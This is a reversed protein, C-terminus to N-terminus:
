GPTLPGDAITHYHSRDPGSWHITLGDDDTYCSWLKLTKMRHHLRCLCQGNAVSTPGNSRPDTHPSNEIHDFECFDAPVTCYPFRCHADRGAIEARHKVPFAYSEVAPLDGPLVRPRRSREELIEAATTSVWGVGPIFGPGHGSHGDVTQRYLNVTVTINNAGDGLAELMVESRLSSLASRVDEVAMKEKLSQLRSWAANNIADWLRSAVAKSGCELIIRTDRRVARASRTEHEETEAVLDADLTVVIKETLEALADPAVPSSPGINDLWDLIGCEVALDIADRVEAADSASLHRTHRNIVLWVRDLHEVSIRGDDSVVSFLDPQRAALEGAHAFRHAETRGRGRRALAVCRRQDPDIAALYRVLAMEAINIPHVLVEEDTPMHLLDVAM